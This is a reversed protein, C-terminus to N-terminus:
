QSKEQEQTLLKAMEAKVKSRTTKYEM